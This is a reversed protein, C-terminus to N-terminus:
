TGYILIDDMYDIVANVDSSCNSPMGLRVPEWYQWFDEVVEVVASSALYAWYTGPAVSEVWAALAGPYSGGMLVWPVVDPGSPDERTAWPVDVTNAFHTMDLISNELTLYQLNETTLNAFPSSRGWYRHEIYLIGAGLEQALLGVLSNNRLGDIGETANSEGPNHVQPSNCWDTL